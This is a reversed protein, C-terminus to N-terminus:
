STKDLFRVRFYKEKDKSTSIRVVQAEPYKNILDWGINSSSNKIEDYKSFFDTILDGDRLM